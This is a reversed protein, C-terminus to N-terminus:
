EELPDAAKVGSFIYIDKIQIIDYQSNMIKEGVVIQAPATAWANLTAGTSDTWSAANGVSVVSVSHVDGSTNWSYGIRYTTGLSISTAHALTQVTGSNDRWSIIIANNVDLSYVYIYNGSNGYIEMLTNTDLDSNANGDTITITFYLTGASSTFADGGTVPWSVYNDLATYQIYDASVSVNTGTDVETGDATATGNTYCAKIANSPYDGTYCFMYTTTACGCPDSTGAGVGALMAPNMRALQIPEASFASTAILILLISLAKKM